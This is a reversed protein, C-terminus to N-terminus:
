LINRDPDAERASLYLKTSHTWNKVQEQVTRDSDVLTVSPCVSTMSTAYALM